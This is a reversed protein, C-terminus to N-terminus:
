CGTGGDVPKCGFVGPRDYQSLTKLLIGLM